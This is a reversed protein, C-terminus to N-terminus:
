CSSNKAEEECSGNWVIEVERSQSRYWDKHDRTMEKSFHSKRWVNGNDEIFTFPRAIGRVFRHFADLRQVHQQQLLTTPQAPCNLQFGEPMEGPACLYLDKYSIKWVREPASGDDYYSPSGGESILKTVNYREM